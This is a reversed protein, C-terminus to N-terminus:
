PTETILGLVYVICSESISECFENFFYQHKVFNQSSLIHFQIYLKNRFLIKFGANRM